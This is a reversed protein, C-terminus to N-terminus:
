NRNTPPQGGASEANSSLWPDGRTGTEKTSVLASTNKKDAKMSVLDILRQDDDNELRRKAEKELRTLEEKGIKHEKSDPDFIVIRGLEKDLFRICFDFPWVKRLETIRFGREDKPAYEGRDIIILCVGREPNYLSCNWCTHDGPGKKLGFLKEYTKRLFWALLRTTPKPPQRKM